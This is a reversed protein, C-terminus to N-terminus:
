RRPQRLEKNLRGLAQKLLTKAVGEVFRTSLRALGGSVLGEAEYDLQTRGDVEQLSFAATGTVIGTPGSIEGQFRCHGPAEQELIQVYTQFAGSIAPLRLVIEGRYEGASEQVLEQCGPILGMLSIPDVVRPWVEDRPAELTYSGAIEIM